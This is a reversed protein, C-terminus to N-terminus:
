MGQCAQRMGELAVQSYLVGVWGQWAHWAQLDGWVPLFRNTRSAQRSTSRYLAMDKMPGEHRRNRSPSPTANRVIMLGSELRGVSADDGM